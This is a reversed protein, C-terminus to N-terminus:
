GFEPGVIAFVHDTRELPRDNGRYMRIFPRQVTFQLTDLWHAWSTRRPVDLIFPRDPHTSVCAAVLERATAEDRAVLPGLHEFAHGRRGFLYGDIHEQGGVWAYEPADRRFADLLWRRDAGFVERDQMLVENVDDDQMPRASSRGVGSEREGSRSTPGVARQMRQLRYEERFGAREYLGFGAPTADLRVVPGDHLITLAEELLRTGIGAGRYAPLVLAMAIWSFASGYRLTAVSGVVEDSDDVAVCCGEPSSALFLEWDRAVQNWQSARCLQLGAAIDDHRMTRIRVPQRQHADPATPGRSLADM